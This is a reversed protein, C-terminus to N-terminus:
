CRCCRGTATADARGKSKGVNTGEVQREPARMFGLVVRDMKSRRVSGGVVDWVGQMEVVLRTAGKQLADLPLDAVVLQVRRVDRRCAVVALLPHSPVALAERDVPEDQLVLHIGLPLLHFSLLPM